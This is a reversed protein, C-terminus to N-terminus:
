FKKFYGFAHTNITPNCVQLCKLHLLVAYMSFNKVNPMYNNGNTKMHVHLDANSLPKCYM